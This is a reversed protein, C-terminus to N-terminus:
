RVFGRVGAGRGGRAAADVGGASRGDSAAPPGEAAGRGRDRAARGGDSPGSGTTAASSGDSAHMNQWNDADLEEATDDSTGAIAPGDNVAGGATATGDDYDFEVADYDVFVFASSSDVIDGPEDHYLGYIDEFDFDDLPNDSM